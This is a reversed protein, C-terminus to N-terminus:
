MQMMSIASPPGTGAQLQGRPMRKRMAGAVWGTGVVGVVRLGGGGGGGDAVAAPRLWPCAREVFDVAEDREPM